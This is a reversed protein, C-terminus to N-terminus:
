IDAKKQYNEMLFLTQTALKAAIAVSINNL